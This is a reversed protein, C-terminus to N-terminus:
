KTTTSPTKPKRQRVAQQGAQFADELAAKVNWVSLDYFDLYDSKRTELTEIYLHKQAIELLVREHNM